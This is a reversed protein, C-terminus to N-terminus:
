VDVGEYASRLAAIDILKRGCQQAKPDGGASLKERYYDIEDQTACNVQLAIAENFTFV